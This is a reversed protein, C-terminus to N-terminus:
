SKVTQRGRGRKIFAPVSACLLQTAWLRVARLPSAPNSALSCPERARDESAPNWRAQQATTVLGLPRQFIATNEAGPNPDQHSVQSKGSRPPSARNPDLRPPSLISPRTSVPAPLPSNGGWSM